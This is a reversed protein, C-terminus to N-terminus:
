PDPQHLHVRARVLSLVQGGGLPQDVLRGGAAGLHDGQRLVDGVQPRALQVLGIGLRDGAGGGLAEGSRGAPVADVEEAAGDELARVHGALVVVGAHEEGGAPGDERGVALDVEEVDVQTAVDRGVLRRRNQGAVPHDRGLDLPM